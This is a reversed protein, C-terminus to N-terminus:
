VGVGLYRRKIQEDGDLEEASGRFVVEGNELVYVIDALGIALTYNQEVLLMSLGSEKLERLQQGVAEVIMPALGESPEDMILLTPSTMLARAIALMQQEGGSLQGAENTRREELRPFMKWIRDLDWSEGDHGAPARAAVTLNDVVNLTSFVHRGQPVYGLGHRAVVHPELGTLEDDEYTVAGRWVTPPTLSMISRCLSTKGMGNRGLIAVLTAPPVELDIGALAQSQGYGAHLGEVTLM